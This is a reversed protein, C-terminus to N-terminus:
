GSPSAAAATMTNNARLPPPATTTPSVSGPRSTVAACAPDCSRACNRLMWERASTCYGQAVWQPCTAQEDTCNLFLDNVWAGEFLRPMLVGVIKTAYGNSAELTSRGTAPSIGNVRLTIPFGLGVELTVTEGANLTSATGDKISVRGPCVHYLLVAQLKKANAPDSLGNLTKRPLQAFAANTPAWITFPGQGKLADVLKAVTLFTVLTTLDPDNALVDVLTNFQVSTPPPPPQVVTATPARPAASMPPLLQVGTATSAQPAATMTYNARLMTRVDDFGYRLQWTKQGDTLAPAASLKASELRQRVALMRPDTTSQLAASYVMADVAQLYLVYTAQHQGSNFLPVGREIASDIQQSVFLRMQELTLVAAPTPVPVTTSPILLAKDIIHVVGNSGLVDATVVKADNVYVSGDRKVIRVSQGSLTMAVQSERLDAARISGSIVHYKLVNQLEKINRPDLLSDLTAKPVAAFAANTPAFVTLQGPQSLAGALDAAQVATVLTSLVPTAVALEVINKSRIPSLTAVAATM